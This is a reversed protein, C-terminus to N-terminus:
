AKAGLLGASRLASSLRKAAGSSIASATTVAEGIRVASKETRATTKVARKRTEGKESIALSLSTSRRAGGVGALWGVSVLM